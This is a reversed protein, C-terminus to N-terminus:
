IFTNRSQSEEILSPIAHITGTTDSNKVFDAQKVTIEVLDCLRNDFFCHMRGHQLLRGQEGEKIACNNLRSIPNCSKTEWSETPIKNAGSAENIQNSRQNNNIDYMCGQQWSIVPLVNSM